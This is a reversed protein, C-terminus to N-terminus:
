LLEEVETAERGVTYSKRNRSGTTEVVLEATIAQIIAVRASSRTVPRGGNLDTAAMILDVLADNSQVTGGARRIVRPVQFHSFETTVVEFGADGLRMENATPPAYDRVKTWSLRTAVKTNVLTGVTSAWDRIASGGRMLDGQYTYDDGDSKSNSEKKHHHALIATMKREDCLETVVDCCKRMLSNSNEDAAHFSILPDFIICEVKGRQDEFADLIQYIDDVFKGRNGIGDILSGAIRCSTGKSAYGIRGTAEQLRCDGAILRSQRSKVSQAVNESQFMLVNRPRITDHVGLFPTGSALALALQGLLQSKGIGGRGAIVLGERENLLGRIVPPMAELEMRALDDGFIVRLGTAEKRAAEKREHAKQAAHTIPSNLTFNTFAKGAVNTGQECHPCEKCFEGAFDDFISECLPPKMNEVIDAIQADVAEKQYGEYPRSIEQFVEPGNDCHCIARGAMLWEDRPLQWSNDVANRICPLSLLDHADLGTPITGKFEKAPRDVVAPLLAELEELTYRKGGAEHITVPRPPDYKQNFTGPVRILQAISKGGDVAWGMARGAERFANSYRRCLANLRDRNESNVEIGEKFLVVPAFGGGTELIFTPETKAAEIVALADERTPPHNQSQHGERGFDVDGAFGNVWAVDNVTGYRGGTVAEASRPNITMWVDATTNIDTIADAAEDWTRAPRSPFVKSFIAYVERDTPPNLESFFSQM